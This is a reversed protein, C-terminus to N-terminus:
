RARLEVQMHLPFVRFRQMRGARGRLPRVEFRKFLAKFMQTLQAKAIYAGICWHQGVGFSLYDQDPRASDFVQPHHVRRRDFMASQTSALVKQGKRILVSGGEAQLRFDQECIRLPGFNINRFRLTERLCRWLLDDDGVDVAEVVKAMFHPQRLLTELINGGALVNTPIFGLVMGFLQAHVRDLHADHQEGRLTDALLRELPRGQNGHQTAAVAGNMSDRLVRRLDRAAELAMAKDSGAQGTSVDDFNTGFLFSSVALSCKAFHGPDPINLGYYSACMAAPVATVLDQVVDFHQGEQIRSMCTNSAAIALKPVLTEAEPYPFARALMAYDAKYDADAEKMGLVFNRGDNRSGFGADGESTVLKMKWGWPVPFADSAGLVRRVDDHRLVITVGGVKVAPTWWRALDMLTQLYPYHAFSMLLRDSLSQQELRGIDFRQQMHSSGERPAPPSPM